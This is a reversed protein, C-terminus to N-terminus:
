GEMEALMQAAMIGARDQNGAHARLIAVGKAGIKYLAQAAQFRVSWNEDTLSDSLSPIAESQQLLGLVQSAKARIEPQPRKTLALVGYIARADGIRGISDLSQFVIEANEEALLAILDNVAELPKISGLAKICAARVDANLGKDRIINLLPVVVPEGFRRLTDALLPINVTGNLTLSQLIQQLYQVSKRVALARLGALRVYVDRDQLAELLVAISVDDSFYGLLTLARIRRGKSTTRATKYIFAQMGWLSLMEVVRRNDQGEMGRMIDLALDLIIQRDLDELEPLSDENLSIPSYIAAYIYKKWRSKHDIIFKRKKDEAIRRWLLLVLVCSAVVILGCVGAWVWILKSAIPLASM